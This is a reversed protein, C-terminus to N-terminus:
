SSESLSAYGAEASAADERLLAVVLAGAAISAFAVAPTHLPVSTMVLPLLGLPGSLALSASRRTVESATRRRSRYGGVLAAAGFAAILVGAIGGEAALHLADNEAVAVLRDSPGRGEGAYAYRFADLGVGVIPQRTALDLSGRWLELRASEDGRVPLVRVLLDVGAARGGLVLVGLLIAAGARRRRRARDPTLVFAAAIALAIGAVGARSGSAFIAWASVTLAVAGLGRDLLPRGPAALLWLSAGALVTEFGAFQARNPFSGYAQFPNSVEFGGFIEIERQGYSGSILGVAAVGLAALALGRALTPAAGVSIRRGIAAVLVAFGLLLLGARRTADADLSMSVGGDRGGYADRSAVALPGLMRAIGEPVPVAQLLALGALAGFAISVRRSHPGCDVRRATLWLLALMASAAALLVRGFTGTSGGYLGAGAVAAAFLFSSVLVAADRRGIPGRTM